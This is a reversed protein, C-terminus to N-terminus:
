GDVAKNEEILEDNAAPEDIRPGRPDNAARPAENVFHLADPFAEDGFVSGIATQVAVDGIPRAEVRPDNIARGDATIGSTDISTSDVERQTQESDSAEAVQNPADESV